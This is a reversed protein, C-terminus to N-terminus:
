PTFRVLGEPTPSARISITKHEEDRVTLRTAIPQLRRLTPEPDGIMVLPVGEVAVALYDGSPLLGAEFRGNHSSRTQRVFPSMTYWRAPDPSFLVVDFGSLPTGRRDVVVGEVSSHRDTLVVEIEHAGPAVDILRGFSEVGDVVVSRVRWDPPGGVTVTVPGAPVEGRFSGDVGVDLTGMTMGPREHSKVMFGVMIQGLNVKTASRADRVVRGTLSAAASARIELDTLDDSIEIQRRAANWRSPWLPDTVM